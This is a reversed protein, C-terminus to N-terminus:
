SSFRVGTLGGPEPEVRAAGLALRDERVEDSAYADLGVVNTVVHVERLCLALGGHREALRHLLAGANGTATLSRTVSGHYTSTSMFLVKADRKATPRTPHPWFWRGGRSAHGVNM